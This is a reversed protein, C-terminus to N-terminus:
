CMGQQYGEIYHYHVGGDGQDFVAGALAFQKTQRQRLGGGWYEELSAAPTWQVCYEV